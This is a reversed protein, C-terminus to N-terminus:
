YKLAPSWSRVAYACCRNQRGSFKQVGTAGDDDDDDHHDRPIVAHLWRMFSHFSPCWPILRTYGLFGVCAHSFGSSPSSRRGKTDRTRSLFQVRNLNRTVIKSVERLKNFDYRERIPKSTDKANAEIVFM